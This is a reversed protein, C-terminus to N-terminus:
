AGAPSPPSIGAPIAVPGLESINIVTAEPAIVEITDSGNVLVVNSSLDADGSATITVLGAKGLPVFLYTLPQDGAIPSPVIYGITPDSVTITPAGDLQEASGAADTPKLQFKLAQDWPLRTNPMPPAVGKPIPVPGIHSFAIRVARPPTPVPSVHIHLNFFGPWPM